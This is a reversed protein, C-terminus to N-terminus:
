KVLPVVALHVPITDPHWSRPGMTGPLLEQGRGCWSHVFHCVTQTHGGLLRELTGSVKLSDELIEVGGSKGLRRVVRGDRGVVGILVSGRSGM